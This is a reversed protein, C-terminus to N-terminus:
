CSERGQVSEEVARRKSQYRKQTLGPSQVSDLQVGDANEMKRAGYLLGDDERMGGQGPGFDGTPRAELFTLPLSKWSL